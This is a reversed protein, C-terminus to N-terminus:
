KSRAGYMALAENAVDIVTVYENAWGLERLQELMEIANWGQPYETHQVVWQIKDRLGMRALDEAAPIRSMSIM